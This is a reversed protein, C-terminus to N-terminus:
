AGNQVPTQDAAPDVIPVVPFGAYNLAVGKSRAYDELEAREDILDFADGQGRSKTVRQASTLGGAIAALDGNIEESPKWWPMGRAQWQLARRLEEMDMGSPLFFEGDDVALGIRWLTLWNLLSKVKNRKPTCSREYHHWAARSGFFNTFSENYFSFPIDLAKLGLQLMQVMFAQFESAPTAPVIFEADDGQKMDLMFPGSFDVKYTGDDEATTPVVPVDGDRTLKLGVLQSIKAKALALDANDYIDRFRNIAAALPSVGRMSDFRPWNSYLRMNDASVEREFELGGSDTRRWVKYALPKSAKNVKVGQWYKVGNTETIVDAGDNRIRDGEVAQITGDAVRMIGIDGDLISRAEILRVFVERSFRGSAEFNEELSWLEIFAELDRQFRKDPHRGAFEFDCVYDQHRRLMWGVIEFNRDLDRANALLQDRKNATLISDEMGKRILASKRRASGPEGASYNLKQPPGKRTSPKAAMRKAPRTAAAKIM